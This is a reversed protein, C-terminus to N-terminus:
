LRPLPNPVRDPSNVTKFTIVGEWYEIATEGEDWIADLEIDSYTIGGDKGLLFGGETELIIKPRVKGCEIKRLFDYNVAGIHYMKFNFSRTKLVNVTKYQITPIKQYEPKPLNGVCIFRKQKTDTADTNDIDFDGVVMTPGWNTPPSANPHWLIIGGIQSLVADLCDGSVNAAVGLAGTPCIIDDCSVSFINSNESM